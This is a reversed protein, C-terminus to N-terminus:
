MGNLVVFDLPTWRVNHPLVYNSFSNSAKNHVLMVIEKLMEIDTVTYSLCLLM